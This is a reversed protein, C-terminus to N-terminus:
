ANKILSPSKRLKRAARVIKDICRVSIQDRERKSANYATDWETIAASLNGEAGLLSWFTSFDGKANGLAFNMKKTKDKLFAEINSNVTKCYDACVELHNATPPLNMLISSRYANMIGDDWRKAFSRATDIPDRALHVYIANNGYAHELRGLFWSLRNDAEIHNPPYNLRENGIL